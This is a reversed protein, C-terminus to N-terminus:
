SWQRVVGEARDFTAAVASPDQRLVTAVEAPHTAGAGPDSDPGTGFEPPYLQEVLEAVPGLRPSGTAAARLETLTMTEAGPHGASAVYGRVLRSIEQHARRASLEGSEWRQRTSALEALTAGRRDTPPPGTPVAATTRKPRTLLVVVVPWLLVLALALVGAVLWGSAYAAPPFPETPPM